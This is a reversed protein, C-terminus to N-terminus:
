TPVFGQKQRLYRSQVSNTDFLSNTPTNVKDYWLKDRFQSREVFYKHLTYTLGTPTGTTTVIAGGADTLTFSTTGNTASITYVKGTTYGTITGTGGLIGTIKVANGVTLTTSSCTFQGATGSIAVGSLSSSNATETAAWTTSSTFGFLIQYIKGGYMFYAGTDNYATSPQWKLVSTSDYQTPIEEYGGASVVSSGILHIIPAGTGGTSRNIRSLRNRAIDREWYTIKEGRIFVVGPRNGAIDPVSCRSADKVNIVTDFIGLDTSLETSEQLSIRYFNTQDLLNKFMRFSMMGRQSNETFETIILEDTELFQRKYLITNPSALEYDQMPLQFIGNKYVQVYDINLHNDHLTYLPKHIINVTQGDLEIADYTIDDYGPTYPVAISTSGVYVSTKMNVSDHNAYSIVKVISDTSLLLAKETPLLNTFAFAAGSKFGTPTYTLGTPTGTTTVIAVGADTLTFSTTGNTASITYVKGTTYGTITGTGGLTGSITIGNGIALTTATTAACSFEGATGSIAVGSLGSINTVEYLNGDYNIIEGALYVTEPAWARISSNASTGLLLQDSDLMAFEAKTTCGVVISDDTTPATGIFTITRPTSVTMSGSASSLSVADIGTYLSVTIHTADDITKIYYTTGSVLGGFGTGTFKIPQDLVLGITSSITIKNTTVTTATITQAPIATTGSINYNVANIQIQGNKFVRIEGDGVTFGNVDSVYAPIFSNTSGDGIFYNYNPPRLRSGNLEVIVSGAYPRKVGSTRDLTVTYDVPYNFTTNNAFNYYSTHIERQTQVEDYVFVHVTDGIEKETNFKVTYTGATNRVSVYDTVPYSREGNSFVLLDQIQDYNTSLVFEDFKVTNNFCTISILDDSTPVPNTDTINWKVIRPTIGDPIAPIIEYKVFNPINVMEVGNKYVKIDADTVLTGDIGSIYAPLWETTSSDGLYYAYTTPDKVEFVRDYLLHNGGHNQVAVFLSDAETLPVNFIIKSNVRDFWYSTTTKMTGVALALAFTPGNSTQSITIHTSDVITKIFYTVNNIINGFSTGIFKIPQNISLGGTNNMTIQNNTVDSMNGIASSLTMEPGAVQSVLTESLTINNELIDITKIYYTVGSVIGGFSTGTFKIPDNVSLGLTTNIIVQNTYNAGTRTIFRNAQTATITYSSEALAGQLASQVFLVDDFTGPVHVDFETTEGDGQFRFNTINPGAGQIRNTTNDTRPSAHVQIDLTDFMRGPIMEEPGFSSYQSVFKNGDVLLDEARTGLDVDTFSSTIITDDLGSVITPYGVPLDNFYRGEVIAGPYELGSQLQALEAGAMGDTPAYYGTIRDNASGFEGALRGSLVGNTNIHQTWVLNDTDFSAGSTFGAGGGLPEVRYVIGANVVYAGSAYYTSPAWTNIAVDASSLDQDLIRTLNVSTFTTGSTFGATVRYVTNRYVLYQGTTYVTSAAWAIVSTDSTYRDFKITTQLKRLTNNALQPYLVAGSGTSGQKTITITPPTIYGSGEATMIIEKIGGGSVLAYATAGSGGGGSITIIPPLVYGAGATSVVINSIGYTRNQGWMSYSINNALVGADVSKEGNPSRFTNSVSDYYAPVDFDTIDGLWPEDGTYNLLYERIKTHYPKTENIYDELFTQNDKLYVSQQELKRFNHKVDIFSTKFIWDVYKQEKLMYRMLIFFLENVYGELEDVFIDNFLLNFLVRIENSYLPLGFADVGTYMKSNFNITGNELAVTEFNFDGTYRLIEYRGTGNNSIKVTDGIAFTMTQTDARTNVIHTPLASNDYGVAVYDVYDWLLTLNYEQHDVAVWLGSSLTYTAWGNYNSDFEVLLKYGNALISTNLYSQETINAVKRDWLGSAATPAPEQYSLKQIAYIETLRYLNFIRNISLTAVKLAPAWDKFMSQRPRNLIGYKLNETLDPDPVKNHIADYGALSDIIKNLIKTAPRSNPNNEQILQYESHIVDTNLQKDYDIRLAIDSGTLYQGINYLGISNDALFAAYPLGQGRPNDILEEIASVTLTRGKNQDAKTKRRVWYYYTSVIRGTAPDTTTESVVANDGLPAYGNFNGANAAAYQNPPVSSATWEYVEITSGPFSRGWNTSRYQFTDQEYNLYRVKDVNWWVEGVKDSGWLDSSTVGYVGYVAPDYETIYDIQGLAQGSVKGKVPDIFDLDIIKTNTVTNYLYLRNISNTNVLAESSSSVTWAQTTIGDTAFTFVAGYNSGFTDVGTAGVAIRDYMAVSTGFADGTHMGGSELFKDLIFVGPRTANDVREAVYEYVAVSGSKGINDYFNISGSDFTTATGTLTSSSDNVMTTLHQSGNDTVYYNALKTSYRDFTMVETTGDNSSGILLKMADYSIALTRGFEDSDGPTPNNITQTLSFVGLGLDTLGTGSGPLIRLKDAVLVVDCVIYLQNAVANATVGPINKNNIDIVVQALSTGTFVVDFDNIRIGHGVTVTPTTVTGTVSGYLRGINTYRYVSGVNYTGITADREPAGIYATCDFPCLVTSTGFKQSGQAAAPTLKKLLQFNNSHIKILSGNAPASAFTVTTGSYTVTTTVADVTALRVTADPTRLLTQTTASGTGVFSEISRDYIYVAGNDTADTDHYPAGILVQAGDTSCSVSYGFNDDGSPMPESAAIYAGVVHFASSNLGYAYVRGGTEGPAAGPDTGPAGVYLWLGDKSFSISQGFYVGTSSGTFTNILAVTDGTRKYIYVAGTNTSTTPNGVAFYGSDSATITTGFGVGQTTLSAATLSASTYKGNTGKKYFYVKGEGPAGALLYQGSDLFAVSSGFGQDTSADISTGISENLGWVDSKKWVAWDVYDNGWRDIAAIDDAQWGNKPAYNAWNSLRDFRISTLKYMIGNGDEGSFTALNIIGLPASVTFSTLNNIAKVRYINDFSGANGFNKIVVFDDVALGHRDSTNIALNGSLANTINTVLIGLQEARYLDWDKNRKNAAWLTYGSGINSILSSITAVDINDIDFITGDVDTTKIYGATRLEGEINIKDKTSLFVNKTYNKPKIRIQKDLIVSTSPPFYGYAGVTETDGTNLFELFSPNESFAPEPLLVEIQENSDIAGYEGVRIAWNEFLEVGSTFHDFKAGLLATAASKTGKEKIYGQYFKVQSVDDVGLDTLYDRSRFGILGKGFKDFESELNVNDINYFGDSQAALADFNPLLGTKISAKEILKWKTYPFVDSAPLDDDAVYYQNKFEVLQGVRYDTGSTWLPVSNDNYIFGPAYMTGDWDVTKHGVLKIRLQRNGTEPEYIVDNFLTKNDFIISHEYQVLNMEILAISGGTATITFTNNIRVINFQDNKLYNFNQDVVRSAGAATSNIEDVVYGARNLTIRSALPNLVLVTDTGWGQQGWTLFEKCSLIFDRNENLDIDYEDFIVGQSILYRQYSVLFDVVQQKNVFESGYPINIKVPDYDKYITATSTLVKITYNNSNQISAIMTFYPNALDYGSVKFGTGTREIIVGSYTVRAQAVSKKISVSQNDDPILISKGISNPSAQEAFANYMDVGSFGALSYVLNVNTYDIIDRLKGVGDIGFGTLKDAIWNLYSAKSLVEDGSVETNIEYDTLQMRKSKGDFTFENIDTEYLYKDNDVYLGLYKAPKTIAMISQMAYPYESSRRWAAEVPGINGVAWSIKTKKSDFQKVFIDLPTRLQGNADTPIIQLLEPRIFRKDIGKREGWFIVGDRLDEWLVLNGSTYPASGYRQEWWSPQQSFGLMEWPHTNPRATDYFHDFIARWSGQLLEGFVRDTHKAYNWTYSNSGIFTNHSTYNLGYKGTWTTFFQSLAQDYEAKTYDTKRFAGPKVDYETIKHLDWKVKINNYIRKEFELLIDDRYDGFAPVISGDHGEICLTPTVFTTDTYIRPQKSPWMGMKTPTEPIYSGDTSGYEVIRLEDDVEIAGPTLIIAPRETSFTYDKGYVLQSNNVYVLISRRSTNDLNFATLLDYDYQEDNEVTITSTHDIHKSGYALMDSYHWPFGNTKVLNIDTLITDLVAPVDTFDAIDMNIIQDLLKHKFRSYERSANDIAGIVNVDPHTLFLAAPIISSSHQLISGGVNKIKPLDRLNSVGPYVGSVLISTEYIEKAHGRLQGLTFVDSKKNISNIELNKPIQYFSNELITGSPYVFINIKDNEAAVSTNLLTVFKRGNIQEFVYNDSSIFKNNLYLKFNALYNDNLGWDGVLFSQELRPGVVYEFHQYQKSDAVTKVWVTKDLYETLSTNAHLKGEGIVLSQTVGDITYDFTDTDFNNEFVIDGINQISKYSLAFGLNNDITGNGIQYGFIKTGGVLSTATGSGSGVGTAIFITGLTNTSAGITTFDTTGISEIKYKLGISFAGASTVGLNDPTLAFTSGPYKNTDGFSVGSDDFVDFMPTQNINTKQQGIHWVSGDFWVTKGSKTAGRTILVSENADVDAHEVLTLHKFQSSGDGFPDVVSVKYIKNAVDPNIDASFIVTMGDAIDVSDVLKYQTKEVNSFADTETMDFLDVTQKFTKGANYLQLDYNFEVIPRKANISQDIVPTFGNYEATANIVDIHFWRNSRSWANQDRSARNVTIYDLRMPGAFSPDWTTADWGVTDFRQSEPIIYAEPTIMDAVAVLRISDGVGEVYFENFQYSEPTVTSDFKVKLGNTFTVNNPSIYSSKGVIDLEANIPASSVADILKITGFMGDNNADQYYLTDINATVPPLLELRYNHPNKYFYKAAYTTGSAIKIKNGSQCENLYRLKIIPTSYTYDVQLSFIGQRRTTPVITGVDYAEEDFAHQYDDYINFSTWDEDNVSNNVFILTKNEIDRVSDISGYLSKFGALTLNHLQKFTLSTAFDVVTQEPAELIWDQATRQPVGFIVEGSDTGNYMMGYIDRTSENTQNSYVGSVGPEAQIYFSNGDQNLNFTYTGGRALIITPNLQKLGSLKYANDSPVRTVTYDQNFLVGSAGVDVSDLGNTLWYYQSYNIFKDFDFQGDYSYYENSFLRDHNSNNGGYFNISSLVDAYNSVFKEQNPISVVVGPELQYQQRELTLEPLYNDGQAHAQSTSRGIYGHIRGLSTKTVLQDLTANLFKKNHDTQFIQPLLKITRTAM